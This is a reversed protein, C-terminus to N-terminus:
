ATFLRVYSQGHLTRKMAYSTKYCGYSHERYMEIKGKKLLWQLDKDQKTQILHNGNVAINGYTKLFNLLFERRKPGYNRSHIMNREENTPYNNM